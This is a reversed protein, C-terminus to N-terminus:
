TLATKYYSTDNFHNYPVDSVLKDIPTFGKASLDVRHISKPGSDEKDDQFISKKSFNSTDIDVSEISELDIEEMADNEANALLKAIEPDLEDNM